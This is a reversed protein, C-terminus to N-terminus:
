TAAVLDPSMLSRAFPVFRAVLDAVVFFFPLVRFGFREGFYRTQATKQNLALRVACRFSLSPSSPLCPAYAVVAVARSPAAAGTLECLM